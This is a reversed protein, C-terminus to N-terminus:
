PKKREPCLLSCFLLRREAGATKPIFYPATPKKPFLSSSTQGGFLYISKGHYAMGHGFRSSALRSLLCNSLLVLISLLVTSRASVLLKERISTMAIEVAHAAARAKITCSQCVLYL